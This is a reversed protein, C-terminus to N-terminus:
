FCCIASASRSSRRACCPTVMLRPVCCRNTGVRGGAGGPRNEIVVQQGLISTAKDAALRCLLDATGGAPLPVVMTVPHSPFGTQAHGVVPCGATLIGVLVAGVTNSRM